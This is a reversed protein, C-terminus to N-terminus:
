LVIMRINKSIKIKNKGLKNRRKKEEGEGKRGIRKRKEAPGLGARGGEKKRKRKSKKEEPERGPGSGEKKRQMKEKEERSGVASGRRKQIRNEGEM